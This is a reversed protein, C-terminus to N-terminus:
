EELVYKYLKANIFISTNKGLSVPIELEKYGKNVLKIKYTGSPYDYIFLPTKGLLKKNLFVSTDKPDAYVVINNSQSPLSYVVFYSSTLHNVGLQAKTVTLRNPQVVIPLTLPKIFDKLNQPILTVTHPGISLIQNTLPTEGTDAEDIKVAAKTYTTNLTLVGTTNSLSPIHQLSNLVTEAIGGWLFTITMVIYLTIWLSLKAFAIILKEYLTPEKPLTVKYTANSMTKM